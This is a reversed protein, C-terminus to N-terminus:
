LRKKCQRRCTLSPHSVHSALLGQLANVQAVDPGKASAQPLMTPLVKQAFNCTKWVPCCGPAAPLWWACEGLATPLGRFVLGNTDQFFCVWQIGAQKWQDVLGSSHLLAHVDGHGHPKTQLSYPDREDLALHADNDMLCAVQLGSGCTVRQLGKLASHPQEDAEDESSCGVQLAHRWLHDLPPLRALCQPSHAPHLLSHWALCAPPSQRADPQGRAFSLEPPSVQASRSQIKYM